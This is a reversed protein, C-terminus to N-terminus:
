VRLWHMILRTIGVLCFVTVTFLWVLAPPTKAVRPLSARESVNVFRKGSLWAFIGAISISAAVLLARSWDFHRPVMAIMNFTFLLALLTMLFFIWKM